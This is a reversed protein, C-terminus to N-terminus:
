PAEALRGHLWAGLGSVRSYELAFPHLHKASFYEELSAPPFM